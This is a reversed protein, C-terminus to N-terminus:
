KLDNANIALGAPILGFVDFHNEIMFKYIMYSCEYTVSGSLYILERHGSSTILSLKKFEDVYHLKFKEDLQDVLLQRFEENDHLDSLPKLIPVIEIISLLFYGNEGTVVSDEPSVSLQELIGTRDEETQLYSEKSNTCKLGYALYPALHKLELEM